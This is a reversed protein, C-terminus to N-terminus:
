CWLRLLSRGEHGMGDEGTQETEAHYGFGRRTRLEDWDTTSSSESLREAALLQSESLLENGFEQM